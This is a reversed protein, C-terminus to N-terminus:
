SHYREFLSVFRLPSHRSFPFIALCLRRLALFLGILAVDRHPLPKSFPFPMFISYLLPFTESLLLLSSMRVVNRLVYAVHLSIKIHNCVRNFDFLGVNTKVTKVAHQKRRTCGLRWLNASRRIHVCISSM